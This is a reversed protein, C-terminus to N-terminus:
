LENKRPKECSYIKLPIYCINIEEIETLAIENSNVPIVKDNKNLKLLEADIKSVRLFVTEGTSLQFQKSISKKLVSKITLMMKNKGYGMSQCEKPLRDALLSVDPSYNSNSYFSQLFLLPNDKKYGAIKISKTIGNMMIPNLSSGRIDIEVFFVNNRETLCDQSKGIFPFLCNLVVALIYKNMSKLKQYFHAIGLEIQM